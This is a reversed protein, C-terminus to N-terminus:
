QHERWFAILEKIAEEYTIRKCKRAILEGVIKTLEVHIDDSLRITKMNSGVDSTLRNRIFKVCKIGFLNKHARLLLGCLKRLYM